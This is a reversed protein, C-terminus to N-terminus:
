NFYCNLTLVAYPGGPGPVIACLSGCTAATATCGPAAHYANCRAIAAGTNCTTGVYDCSSNPSCPNALAPRPSMATLALLGNAIVAAASLQLKRKTEM